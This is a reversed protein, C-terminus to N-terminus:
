DVGLHLQRELEVFRRADAPVPRLLSVLIATVFSLPITIIGPNRLPFWADAHKLVDIQITPSLIAGMYNKPRYVVVTASGSRGSASLKAVTGTDPNQTTECSSLVSGLAIVAVLQLYRIYM